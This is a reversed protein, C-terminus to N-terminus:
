QNTFLTARVEKIKNKNREYLFLIFSNFSFKFYLVVKLLMIVIQMELKNRSLHKTLNISIVSELDVFRDDQVHCIPCLFFM